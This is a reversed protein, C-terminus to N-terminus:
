DGKKFFKTRIGSFDEIFIRCMYNIVESVERNNESCLAKIREEIAKSTRCGLFGDCRKLKKM